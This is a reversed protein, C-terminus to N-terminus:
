GITQCRVAYTSDTQRTLHRSHSGCVCAPWPSGVSEATVCGAGLEPLRSRSPMFSRKAEQEDM